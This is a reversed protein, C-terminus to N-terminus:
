LLAKKYLSDVDFIKKMRNHYAQIKNKRLSLIRDRYQCLTDFDLKYPKIIFKNRNSHSFETSCYLMDKNIDSFFLGDRECQAFLETGPYPTSISLDIDDTDLKEIFRVSADLSEITDEPMGMVFDTMLFLQPYTRIANIADLAEEEKIKKKMVDNRIFLDGSEVSVCTRILGVSVLGDIMEKTTSNLPLGTPLDLTLKMNRKKIEECIAIVRKSDQAFNADYIVFTHVANREYLWQLMDVVKKASMPRYCHGMAHSVSCFTCFNPCGRSTIVPVRVGFDIKYPNHWTSTDHLYDDFSLLEYAPFPLNDLISIFSTKPKVVIQDHLRYALGNPMNHPLTRTQAIHALTLAQEEGEGIAAFDIDRCNALIENPFQSVHAGGVATIIDPSVQKVIKSADNALKFQGAVMTSFGVLSPNVKLLYDAFQKLLANDTCNSIKRKLVNFDLVEVSYNNKLLYAAVSLLGIPMVFFPTTSVEALSLNVLLITKNM